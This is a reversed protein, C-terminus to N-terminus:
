YVGHHLEMMVFSYSKANRPTRIWVVASTKRTFYDADCSNIMVFRAMGRLTASFCVSMKCANSHNCM